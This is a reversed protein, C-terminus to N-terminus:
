NMMDSGNTNFNNNKRKFLSIDPKGFRYSFNVRVVQPNRIRWSDQIFFESETYTGTRRSRFIDRISVTLSAKRKFLDKRLAADVFWYEKRFGQATNSVGRWQFRRGGSSPIFAAPSQYEGTIQLRFQAPLKIVLNEKFFWTFQENILGDEVNSADVRSQYLNVNTTLEVQPSFTNRMTFETGYAESNNSNAYSTMIVERDGITELFQYNTILNNAQKYYVSLLFDHGKTIINQYTLELSNTFEPLLDPNGRRLNLSDSFDTFPLLRFFSPRNIRRSYSLQINDQKNIEKTLFLSPFFSFPFDNEFVDGTEPLEGTYQSSEARLGLQYSWGSTFQQSFTAYGAYVADQFQYEDAFNPVRFREGSDRDFLYSANQSDYDRLAARVGVEMKGTKGIPEVYDTQVTFFRSGGDNEQEEVSTFGPFINTFGGIGETRVENINVDATWERGKKPFLHKFLVSGGMNRFMRESNSLRQNLGSAVVTEGSLTDNTIDINNFSDFSGRTFSGSFTLTNRNDLFIDIGGRFSTFTGTFENETDQLVNTLPAGILNFRDTEGEGKSVRQNLNASLFVNVKGERANINGGGNFGGRTDIGARISGNYGIKREKKLVINVIGAQGGSADYKASPNTIVEVSEIEDSAIQDLTLTTPRGDVFLQPAANRLTLNGDIDVSLSPVNRLADEATGGVAVSNQDVKFIKKDLELKVLTAESEIVVEDLTTTKSALKINGLDKDFNGGSMGGWGGSGPRGTPRQGGAAAGPKGGGQPRKLGFDVKQETTAYGLVSIKLTFEGMVPLKTLDFDGNEKTIQGALVAETRSKTKPDFKMGILQVSAYGIGKGADDVVKGYLRGINMAERNWGGQGQRGGQSYSLLFTSLTITALLLYSKFNM